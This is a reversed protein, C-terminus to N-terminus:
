SCNRKIEPAEHYTDTEKTKDYIEKIESPDFKPFSECVSEFSLGCNIMSEVAREDQKQM